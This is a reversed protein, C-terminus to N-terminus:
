EFGRKGEVEVAIFNELSKYLLLFIEDYFSYDAIPLTLLLLARRYNLFIQDWKRGHQVVLWVFGIHLNSIQLHARKDYHPLGDHDYGVPHQYTM